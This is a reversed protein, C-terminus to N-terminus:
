PPSPVEPSPDPPPPAPSTSEPPTRDAPGRLVLEDVDDDSPDTGSWLTWRGNESRYGIPADTFPDLPVEALFAPVLDALSAPPQGTALRYREIAAVCNALVLAAHARDTTDDFERRKLEQVPEGIERGRRPLVPMAVVPHKRRIVLQPPGDRRQGDAVNALLALGRGAPMPAVTMAGCAATVRLRFLLGARVVRRPNRPRFEHGPHPLLKRELARVATTVDPESCVAPLLRSVEFRLNALPRLGPHSRGRSTLNECMEAFWELRRGDRGSTARGSVPALDHLDM